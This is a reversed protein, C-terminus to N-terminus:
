WKSISCAMRSGTKFPMESMPIKTSLCYYILLVFFFFGALPLDCAMRLRQIMKPANRTNTMRNKMQTAVPMKPVMGEKSSSSFGFVLRAVSIM